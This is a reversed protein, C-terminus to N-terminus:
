LHELTYEVPVSVTQGAYATSHWNARIFSKTESDLIPVGSSQAVFAGVVSGKANFQVNVIVTGTQRRDRAELPYPPHPLVSVGPSYSSAVAPPAARPPVQTPATKTQVIAPHSSAVPKIALKEPSNPREALIPVGDDPPKPIVVPRPPKSVSVPIVPPLIPAPVPSPPPMPQPPLSVVVMKELSITPTGPASGNRIPPLHFRYTIAVWIVLGLLAAHFICSAVLALVHRRRNIKPRRQPVFDIRHM